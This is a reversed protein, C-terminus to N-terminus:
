TICMGRFLANTYHSILASWVLLPSFVLEVYYIYLLVIYGVQISLQNVIHCEIYVVIFIFGWSLEFCGRM